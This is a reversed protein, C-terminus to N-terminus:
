ARRENNKKLEIIETQMETIMAFISRTRRDMANEVKQIQSYLFDEKTDRFLDLQM